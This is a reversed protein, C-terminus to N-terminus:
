LEDGGHNSFRKGAPDYTDMESPLVDDVGVIRGAAGQQDIWNLFALRNTNSICLDEFEAMADNNFFVKDHQSAMADLGEIGALNLIRGIVGVDILIVREKM